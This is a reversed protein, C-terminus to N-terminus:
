CLREGQEEIVEVISTTVDTHCVPVDHMEIITGPTLALSPDVLTGGMNTLNGSLLTVGELMVIPSDHRTRVLIDRGAFNLTAGSSLRSQQWALYADFRITVAEYEEQDTGFLAISM